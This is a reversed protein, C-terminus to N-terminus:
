RLLDKRGYERIELGLWHPGNPFILDRTRYSRCLLLVSNFEHRSTAMRDKYMVYCAFCQVVSLSQQLGNFWLCQSNCFMSGCVNVTAFCQVVSLTQQELSVLLILNMDRHRWAIKIRLTVHLVNFWLCHSNCVMSGCVNATAFCQVVSM